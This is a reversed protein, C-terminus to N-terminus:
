VERQTRNKYDRRATITIIFAERQAPITTAGEDILVKEWKERFRKYIQDCKHEIVWKLRRIIEDDVKLLDDELLKIDSDSITFIEVDDKKISKM